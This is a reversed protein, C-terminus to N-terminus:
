ALDNKVGGIPDGSGNLVRHNLRESCGLRLNRCAALFIAPAAVQENGPEIFHAEVAFWRGSREVCKWVDLLYVLIAAGGCLDQQFFRVDRSDGTRNKARLAFSM